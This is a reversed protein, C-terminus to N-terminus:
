KFIHGTELSWFLLDLEDLPIGTKQSFKKLKKELSLYAKESISKPIEAVINYRAMNKLIHVDLIALDRGLGVNRLFHSAEKLGIGKVNRVLWHRSGFPNSADIRDKISIRGGRSFLRRAEVIYRSKNNPFRVSHLHARIQRSTGSYLVGSKVLSKVAKDSYVAKSQPTCICFCLEAFVEKESGKWAEKFQRLRKKIEPKRRKYALILEKM